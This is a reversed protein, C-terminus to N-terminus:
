SSPATLWEGHRMVARPRFDDDCVVLDAALGPRLAGTRDALGLVRAPTTSAAVAVDPVPLGAAVAHRAVDALTATSGAIAASDDLLRAVGGAVTVRQSGLQYSGDPMGAAAMADSVLVLRDPGAARATLRVAIDDLHVGDAIVECTVEHRDLLAGVAGPERHHPPRMGNFLHTAHTAGANIAALTVEATADTHGVAVTVGARTAAQIVALAGPLEPALTIVRLHGRAAAHLREFVAVDPAIMHRPDQAGRRVPSLFPGELHLGAIVGDDALGALLGARAELEAIPATVLSALVTTSGQGRHFAAAQRAQDSTGETFSAGGGGHVHMDIFGPLVWRGRLEVAPLQEPPDGSGVADIVDGGLRIWGPSLVRDPTVVRGGALLLM